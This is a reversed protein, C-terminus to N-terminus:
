LILAGHEVQTSLGLLIFSFIMGVIVTLGTTHGYKPPSKEFYTDAIIKMVFTCLLMIYFCQQLTEAKM